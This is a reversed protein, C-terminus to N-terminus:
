KGDERDTTQLLTHLKSKLKLYDGDETKFEGFYPNQLRELQKGGEKGLVLIEKGLYLAEEISHTVLITTPSKKEFVKLFLEWADAKTIADLSSFPEDMLLLDPEQLFARALAARQVQGGSLKKPFRDLLDDVQLSRCIEDLEKIKNSDIPINRLKLPLLCNKRVTKWPLLGCNQPMVAISHLKTSLPRKTSGSTMHITGSQVSLMGSLVQILTSKGCGSPGLVALIEGQLLELSFDKLVSVEKNQGKYSVCISNISLM